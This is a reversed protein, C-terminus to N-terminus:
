VMLFIIHENSNTKKFFFVNLMSSKFYYFYDNNLLLNEKNINKINNFIIKKYNTIDLLIDKNYEIKENNIKYQNSYEIMFLIICFQLIQAKEYINDFM